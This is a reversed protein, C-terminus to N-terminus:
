KATLLVFEQELSLSNDYIHQIFAKGSKAYYLMFNDVREQLNNNPFLQQKLKYVQREQAEFKQKEAKLMKKELQEIRQLSKRYLAETHAALTVDIKGSIIQVQSYLESLKRKENELSLQHSSERKVLMNILEFASQFLAEKSLQLKNILADNKENMLLFSNRVILVPYPVGVAEFVKKLELWYAIEGGGGIFAINPLITEQFVPRLIVNPSFREPFENLEQLIEEKSFIQETNVISWGNSVKEIRERRNDKLYFLNLERGSAQVKYTSPFDTVTQKVAPHSFQEFLERALVDSFARKLLRSDPLLVLLGYEAFLENVLKFTAQEITVGPQYCRKMLEVVEKGFEHVLLQGSLQDILQLLAKDVTMRGVAGQQDTKWEYKVGDQYIHGLEELDADESGMYYVPVFNNEPLQVALSEALKVTHLIKYIFYLHGTFINPQHATCITFTNDNNLLQIYAQQKETLALGKYQEQLANVLLPRDTAFQKRAEIAAKIGDVSVPHNYFPKLEDQGKIYDLVITSFYGTSSYPLHTSVMQM